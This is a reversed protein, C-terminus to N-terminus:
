RRHPEGRNGSLKVGEYVLRCFEVVRNEAWFRDEAGGTEGAIFGVHGGHATALLIVCPNASISAYVPSAFPVLPDDQAHIILTPTRIDTVLRRASAQEYYDAADRYGGHIATYQNDFDRVSRVTHLGSTDYLDPYLRRKGHVRKRLSRVFTRQYLWNSRQGIKDACASLDLAPSVACVGSLEPPTRAGIEGALKLIINGGMSFGVLFISALNDEEILERLVARFDNSMGSHYLTPTLHETGGCNRMNCRLVNFGARFAKQATGLMYISESSGELGHVLVVTPHARRESQWACHALLRVGPEVEFLRTEDDGHLARLRSRRPWAYAALTQAHGSRFSRHPNFPKAALAGAVVALDFPEAREGRLTTGGQGAHHVTSELGERDFM